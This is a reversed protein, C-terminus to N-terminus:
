WRHAVEYHKVLPEFELLFDKDEPYYHAREYADGAFRKIADISEWFTVLVFEAEDGVTRRFGYGGLNGPTNQYDTFGTRHLFRLYDDSKAAPVRGRWMRMIM